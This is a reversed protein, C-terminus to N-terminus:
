HSYNGTQFGGMNFFIGDVPLKTIAERVIQPAYVRQYDGNICCHVNGNYDEVHGGDYVSAWEPHQEYLPRRVKSFDTRAIVRIGAEHCAGIIERLPDGTLHPSQYHFPLETPYSAIIGAVNIMAVTAHMEKMSAVYREASIDAMDIERLNTQITRWPYGDWWHAM